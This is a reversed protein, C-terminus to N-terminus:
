ILVFIIKDLKFFREFLFYFIVIGLKYSNYEDLSKFVAVAEAHKGQALLIQILYFKVISSCKAQSKVVENLLKECEALKKEKYLQAIKLLAYREKDDFKERYQELLKQM